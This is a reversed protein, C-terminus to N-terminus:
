VGLLQSALKHAEVHFLDRRAVSVFEAAHGVGLKLCKDVAILFGRLALM